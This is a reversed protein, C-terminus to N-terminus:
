NIEYEVMKPGCLRGIGVKDEAEGLQQQLQARQAAAQELGSQLESAGGQASRQAQDSGAGQSPLSAVVLHSALPSGPTCISAATWCTCLRM